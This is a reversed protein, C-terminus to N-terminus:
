QFKEIYYALLESIIIPISFYILHIIIRYWDM